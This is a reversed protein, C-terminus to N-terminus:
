YNRVEWIILKRLYVGKREKFETFEVVVDQFDSAVFHDLLEFLDEYSQYSLYQKLVAKAKLDNAELGELNLADRLNTQMFSYKLYLGRYWRMLEGQIIRKGAPAEYFEVGGSYNDLYKDIDSYSIDFARLPCSVDSSRLYLNGRYNSQELADRNKWTQLYNGLMGKSLMEKMQFKTKIEEKEMNKVKVNISKCKLFLDSSGSHLIFRTKM